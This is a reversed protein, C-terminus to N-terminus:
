IERLFQLLILPSHITKSLGAPSNEFVGLDRYRETSLHKLNGFFIKASGQQSIKLAPLKVSLKVDFPHFVAEPNLLLRAGHGGIELELTHDLLESVLGMAMM